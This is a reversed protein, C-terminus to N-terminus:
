RIFVLKNETSHQPSFWYGAENFGKIEEVTKIRNQILFRAMLGRAKKIYIVIPKLQDNKYELFEVDIVRIKKPNIDLAKFYESSALNVIINTHIDQLALTIQKSIKSRWFPYLDKGSKTELSSSIELRYPQILDTPRLIGYLGSLIVLHNKAYEMDANSFTQAQLGRFVEGDFMLAAQKANEPTFPPNWNFFRNQNLESLLLNLDLLNKLDTLSLQQMQKVLQRAEKMFVPLSYSGIVPSPKTNQIKAPSLILLM